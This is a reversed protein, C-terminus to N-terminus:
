SSPLSPLPVPVEGALTPAIWAALDPALAALDPHSERELADSAIQRVAYVVGIYATQPLPADADSWLRERASRIFAALGHLAERRRARALSGLADMEVQFARGVVPDLVLAGLYGEVVRLVWGHWDREPDVAVSLRGLVVSIFRDYAAFICADKDEFCEYFAGSSVGARASVDRIGVGSYGRDAVLETMAIMLRERQAAIVQERSLEHRGRPLVPPVRFFVGDSISEVV